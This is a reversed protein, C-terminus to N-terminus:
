GSLGGMRRIRDYVEKDHWFPTRSGGAQEVSRAPTSLGPLVRAWYDSDSPLGIGKKALPGRLMKAVMDPIAFSHVQPARRGGNIFDFARGGEKKMNAGTKPLSDFFFGEPNRFGQTASYPGVPRGGAWDPAQPADDSMAYPRQRNKFARGDLMKIHEAMSPATMVEIQRAAERDFGAHQGMKQLPYKTAPAKGTPYSKVREAIGPVSSGRFRGAPAFAALLAGLAQAPDQQFAQVQAEGQERQGQPGFMKIGMFPDARWSNFANVPNLTNAAGQLFSGVPGSGQTAQQYAPTIAGPRPQPRPSQYAPASPRRGGPDLM